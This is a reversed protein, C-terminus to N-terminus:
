AAKLAIKKTAWAHKGARLRRSSVGASGGARRTRLLARRARRHEHMGDGVWSADKRNSLPINCLHLMVTELETSLKNMAANHGPGM